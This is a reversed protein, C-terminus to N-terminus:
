IIECIDKKEERPENAYKVDYIFEVTNNTGNVKPFFYKINTINGYALFYPSGEVPAFFFKPPPDRIKKM